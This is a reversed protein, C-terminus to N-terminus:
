IYMCNTGHNGRLGEQADVTCLRLQLTSSMVKEKREKNAKSVVLFSRAMPTLSILWVDYIAPGLLYGWDPECWLLLSRTLLLGLFIRSGFGHLLLSSDVFVRQKLLNFTSLSDVIVQELIFLIRDSFFQIYLLM